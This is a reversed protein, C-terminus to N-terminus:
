LRRAACGLIEGRPAPEQGASHAELVALVLIGVAWPVSKWEGGWLVQADRTRPPPARRERRETEERYDVISDAGLRSAMAFLLRRAELREEESEWEARLNAIRVTGAPPETGGSPYVHLDGPPVLETTSIPDLYEVSVLVPSSSACGGGLVAPLLHVGAWRRLRRM